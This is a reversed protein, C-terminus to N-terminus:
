KKRMRALGNVLYGDRKAMELLEFETPPNQEDKVYKTLINRVTKKRQGLAVLEDSVSANDFRYEDVSM